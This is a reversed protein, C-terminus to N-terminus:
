EEKEPWVMRILHMAALTFFMISFILILYTDEKASEIPVGLMDVGQEAALAAVRLKEQNTRFISLQSFGM